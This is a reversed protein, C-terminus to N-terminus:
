TSVSMLKLMEQNRKACWKVVSPLRKDSRKVREENISHELSLIVPVAFYHFRTKNVGTRITTVCREEGSPLLLTEHRSSPPLLNFPRARCVRALKRWKATPSTAKPIVVTM